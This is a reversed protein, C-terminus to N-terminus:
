VNRSSNIQKLNQNKITKLWKDSSKEDWYHVFDHRECNEAAWVCLYIFKAKSFFLRARTNYVFWYLNYTYEVLEHFKQQRGSKFCKWTEHKVKMLM